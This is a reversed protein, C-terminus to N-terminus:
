ETETEMTEKYLYLSFYEAVKEWQKKEVMKDIKADWPGDYIDRDPLGDKQLKNRKTIEQALYKLALKKTAYYHHTSHSADKHDKFDLEDVRYFTKM